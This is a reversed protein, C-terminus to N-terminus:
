TSSGVLSQCTRHFPTWHVSHSNRGCGNSALDMPGFASAQGNEAVYRVGFLGVWLPNVPGIFHHLTGMIPSKVFSGMGLGFSGARDRVAAPKTKDQDIGVTEDTRVM